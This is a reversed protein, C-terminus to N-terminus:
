AIAEVKESDLGFKEGRAIIRKLMVKLRDKRPLIQISRSPLNTPIEQYM